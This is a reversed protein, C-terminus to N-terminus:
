GGVRDDSCNSRLSESRQDLYHFISYQRFEDRVEEVVDKNELLLKVMSYHCRKIAIMLVTGDIKNMIKPNAGKELLFKAVSVFGRHM